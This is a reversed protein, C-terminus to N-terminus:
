HSDLHTRPILPSGTAMPRRSRNAASTCIAEPCSLMTVDGLFVAMLHGNHTGAGGTQGARPIQGAQAVVHRHELGEVRRPAHQHVPDRLEAQGLGNHLLFHIFQPGHPHIDFGVHDDALHQRHVLQEAHAVLSHEHAAAGAQGAEQPNRPSVCRPTRDAM